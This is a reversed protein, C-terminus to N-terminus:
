VKKLFPKLTRKKAKQASRYDPATDFGDPSGEDYVIWHNASRDFRYGAKATTAPVKIRELNREGEIAEPAVSISKKTESKSM